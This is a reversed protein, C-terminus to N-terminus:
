RTTYFADPAISRIRGLNSKAESSSGYPVRVKFYGGVHDIVATFGASQMQSLMSEATGRNPSALVQVAYSGSASGNGSGGTSGGGYYSSGGSGGTSGSGYSSGTSYDYTGGTSGYPGGASYADYGGSTTGGSTAGGSYDYSGGTSNYDYGAGTSGTTPATTSAMPACGAMMMALTLTAVGLKWKNQM